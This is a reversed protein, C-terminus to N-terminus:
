KPTKPRLIKKLITEIDRVLSPIEGRLALREAMDRTRLPSLEHKAQTKKMRSSIYAKFGVGTGRGDVIKLYENKVKKWETAGIGFESIPLWELCDHVPTGIIEIELDRQHAFVKAILEFLKKNSKANGSILWKSSESEIEKLLQNYNLVPFQRLRDLEEQLNQNSVGDVLFVSKIGVLYPLISSEFFSPMGYLGDGSVIHIKNQLLFEPLLGELINKDYEGEVILLLNCVAAYEAMSLGLRRITNEVPGVVSKFDRLGTKTEEVLVLQPAKLFVPSHSAVVLINNDSLIQLTEHVQQTSSLHLGKEPEDIFIFNRSEPSVCALWIALKAWRQQTDSLDKIESINGSQSRAKWSAVGRLPWEYPKNIQLWLEPTNEVFKRSLDTANRSIAKALKDLSKDVQGNEDLLRLGSYEDYERYIFNAYQSEREVLEESNSQRTNARQVGFSLLEYTLDEINENLSLVDPNISTLPLRRFYRWWSSGSIFWFKDEDIFTSMGNVPHEIKGLRGFEPDKEQPWQL